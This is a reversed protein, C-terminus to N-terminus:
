SNQWKSLLDMVNVGGAPAQQQTQQQQTQQAQTSVVTPDPERQQVTSTNSMQALNIGGTEVPAQQQNQQGAKAAAEAARAAEMEAKTRRARKAPQAAGAAPDAAANPNQGIGGGADQTQQSQQAENTQQGQGAGGFNITNQPVLEEQQKPAAEPPDYDVERLLARVEDSESLTKYKLFSDKDVFGVTGIKVVSYTKTMDFSFQVAVSQLAINAQKLESNLKTLAQLSMTPVNFTLLEDPAGQWVMVIMKRDNCAKGRGTVPHSGFANKPCSACNTSQPKAVGPAPVKGDNSFCDPADFNGAEYTKEYWAKTLTDSAAVIVGVVTRVPYGDAGQLIVTQGDKTITFAKDITIGFKPARVTVGASLGEDVYGGLERIYDPLKDTAIILENSM